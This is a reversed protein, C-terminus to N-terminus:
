QRARPLPTVEIEISFVNPRIQRSILKTLVYRNPSPSSPDDVFVKGTNIGTASLLARAQALSLSDSWEVAWVPTTLAVVCLLWKM